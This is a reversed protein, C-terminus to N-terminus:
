PRQRVHKDRICMARYKSRASQSGGEATSHAPTGDRCIVGDDLRIRKAADGDDDVREMM